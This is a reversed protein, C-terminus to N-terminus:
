NLIEAGKASIEQIVYFAPYLLMCIQPTDSLRKIPLTAGKVLFSNFKRILQNKQWQTM